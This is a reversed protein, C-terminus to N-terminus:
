NGSSLESHGDHVIQLSLSEDAPVRWVLFLRLLDQGNENVASLMKTCQSSCLQESRQHTTDVPQELDEDFCIGSSLKHPSKCTHQTSDQHQCM